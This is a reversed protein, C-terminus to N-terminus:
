ARGLVDGLREYDTPTNYRQASLRVFPEPEVGFKAEIGAARCLATLQPVDMRAARGSLPVPAMPGVMQAPAPALTGFRDCLMAQADLALRRNAERLGPWGASDLAGVVDIATPVSLWAGPDGTGQWDFMAHFRSIPGDSPSAWGHSVTLPVVDDRVPEDAYLFASGKPACLWKHCNGAYYSAGVAGVDLELLGPAHSGDVVVTVEPELAAVIQAIPLVLGHRSTVHDLLALRTRPGAGELVAAVVEEPGAPRYPIRVVRVGLGEEAAIQEVANRCAGYTQDTVLIDDGPSLRRTASRLATNVGTTANTVFGFGASDAGVFAAVRERAALVAGPYVEDFWRTPNREMQAVVDARAALVPVPCAGYSGHNLQIIAPDLSWFGSSAEDPAVTVDSVLLSDSGSGTSSVTSILLM